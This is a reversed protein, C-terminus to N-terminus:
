SHSKIEELVRRLKDALESRKEFDSVRSLGTNVLGLQGTKQLIEIIRDFEGDPTQENPADDQGPFYFSKDFEKGNNDKRYKKEM